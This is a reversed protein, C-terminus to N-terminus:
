AGLPSYVYGQLWDLFSYNKLKKGEQYFLHTSPKILKQSIENNM